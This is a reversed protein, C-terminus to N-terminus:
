RDLMRLLRRDAGELAEASLLCKNQALGFRTNCWRRAYQNQMLYRTRTGTNPSGRHWLQHNFLYVDGAKCLVPEPTRGEFVIPADVPVVRGSYHSGRVVETPGHEPADIDSLAIQISFWTVPMTMRADHRPLEPPLPFELVDDVHWRSIAGGPRGRIVNQGVFGCDPGLVAEALSLFPERVLMDCFLRHLSQTYRLVEAGMYNEVVPTVGAPPADILADTTTRILNTEAPTLAQRLLVIGDRHFEQLVRKHEADTLREGASIGSTM